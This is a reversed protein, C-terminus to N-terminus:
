LSIVMRDLAELAGTVVSSNVALTMWYIKTSGFCNQNLSAYTPLTEFSVILIRLAPLSGRVRFPYLVVSSPNESVRGAPCIDGPSVTSMAASSFGPLTMGTSASAAKM